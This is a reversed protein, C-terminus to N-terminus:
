AVHRPPARVVFKDTQPKEVNHGILIQIEAGVDQMMNLVGDASGEPICVLLRIKNAATCLTKQLAEPAASDVLAPLLLAIVAIDRASNGCASAGM